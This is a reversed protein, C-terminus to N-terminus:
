SRVENTSNGTLEMFISELELKVREFRRLGLGAQVLAAALEERADRLLEVTATTVGDAEADVRHGAVVTLKGLVAQLAAKSGRVEIAVVAAAQVKGALDHESGEAVIRGSKVVLIRDCLQHIESLIHSSVILTQTGALSKILDRMHVIQVPDLGSTPEDLLVLDPNHVVAQAIGVRRTYGHSLTGIRQDRVKLLDTVALAREVQAVVGQKVGKLHAVFTLYDVVSMEPYVPPNEPLFGIRARVADPNQALSVGAISVSGSTPLILGSLIRLLTTKGAGNLGLLGVVEGKQITFSVDAVAAKDDYYKTLHQAVIM